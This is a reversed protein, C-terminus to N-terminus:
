SILDSVSLFERHVALPDFEEVSEGEVHRAAADESYALRDVQARLSLFDELIEDVFLDAHIDPRKFRDLERLVAAFGFVVTM